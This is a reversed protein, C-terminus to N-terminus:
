KKDEYKVNKLKEGDMFILYTSSVDLLYRSIFVDNVMSVETVEVKTNKQIYSDDNNSQM